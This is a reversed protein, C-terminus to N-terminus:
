LPRNAKFSGHTFLRHFGVTVSVGSIVYFVAAIAVGTWNLGWGWAFPVAVVVALLPVLSFGYVAVLAAIGREGDTIAERRRVEPAPPKCRLCRCVPRPLPQLDRHSVNRDRPDLYGAPNSVATPDRAILRSPRCRSRGCFSLDLPVPTGAPQSHVRARNVGIGHSSTARLLGGHHLPLM